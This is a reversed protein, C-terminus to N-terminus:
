KQVNEPVKIEAAPLRQELASKQNLQGWTYGVFYAACGIFAFFIWKKIRGLVLQKM